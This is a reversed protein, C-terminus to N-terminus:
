SSPESHEGHADKLDLKKLFGTSFPDSVKLTKEYAVKIALWEGRDVEPVEIRPRVSSAM